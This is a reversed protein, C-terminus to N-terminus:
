NYKSDNKQISSICTSLNAKLSDGEVIHMMLDIIKAEDALGLIKRVKDETVKEGMLNHTVIVQDLISLADRVSGESSKSILKLSDNDIDAKEKQSIKELFSTMEDAKIRRLDFRQCRSLITVPIKKVETTALIFKLHPPPEELTKLLANFAQKSLM